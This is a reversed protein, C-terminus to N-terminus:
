DRLIRLMSQPIRIPRGEKNVCGMRTIGSAVLKGDEKRLVTYDMTFSAGKTESVKTRIDLVDNHRAPYKYDVEARVVTFTIGESMYETLSGGRERIFETRAREFYKLYNAYYVVGGCDTDEYYVRIEM